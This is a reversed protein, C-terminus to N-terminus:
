ARKTFYDVLYLVCPDISTRPDCKADIVRDMLYPNYDLIARYLAEGDTLGSETIKLACAKKIINFAMSM